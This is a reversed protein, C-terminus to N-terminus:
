MSIFAKNVGQSFFVDAAKKYDELSEIKIDTLFEAELRNPKIVNVGNLKNKIKRAHTVSVPDICLPVKCIKMIHECTEQSLNCDMVVLAANNIIDSISDIYDPTVKEAINVDSLALAMDGDKNNIYLYMSSTSDEDRFMCSTDIGCSRCSELLDRGLADNGVAAALKVNIGLRTLNDSINRGVGGYSISIRGPNSDAKILDYYPSGGIDINAAGIVVVYKNMIQKGATQHTGELM